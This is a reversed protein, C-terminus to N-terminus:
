IEDSIFRSIGGLFVRVIKLMCVSPFLSIHSASLFLSVWSLQPFPLFPFPFRFLFRDSPTTVTSSGSLPRWLVPRGLLAPSGSCLLTQLLEKERGLGIGRRLLHEPPGAAESRVGAGLGKWSGHLEPIGGLAPGLIEATVKRQCLQRCTLYPMTPNKNPCQQDTVLLWPRSLRPSRQWCAVSRFPSRCHECKSQVSCVGVVPEM